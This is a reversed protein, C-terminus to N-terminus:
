FPKEAKTKKDFLSSFPCTSSDSRNMISGKPKTASNALFQDSRGLWMTINADSSLFSLSKMIWCEKLSALVNQNELELTM